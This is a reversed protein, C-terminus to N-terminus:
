LGAYKFFYFKSVDLTLCIENILNLTEIRVEFPTRNGHGMLLGNLINISGHNPSPMKKITRIAFRLTVSPDTFHGALKSCRAIENQIIDLNENSAKFLTQLITELHQTTNNEAQWIMILLLQISKIRTAEVWDGM